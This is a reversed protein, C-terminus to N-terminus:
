NGGVYSVDQEGSNNRSVQCRARLTRASCLAPTRTGAHVSIHFCCPLLSLLRRGACSRLLLRRSAAFLTSLLKSLNALRGHQAVEPGEEASLQFVRELLRDPRSTCAGLAISKFPFRSRLEAYMLSSSPMSRLSTLSVCYPIPPAPPVVVPSGTRAVDSQLM